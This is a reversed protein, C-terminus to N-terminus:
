GMRGRRRALCREGQPVIWVQLTTEAGHHRGELDLLGADLLELVGSRERVFGYGTARSGPDLGLIILDGQAAAGAHGM